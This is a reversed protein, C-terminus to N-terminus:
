QKSMAELVAVDAIDQPRGAARKNAILAERGIVPVRRGDVDLMAGAAIVQDFSVGAIHNIIDIRLPPVGIQLVGDYGVFDEQSVDFAALPAGFAALASYVAAANSASPRVLVDLDKTTRTYGHFSVAFGGVVAFDAGADALAVLM